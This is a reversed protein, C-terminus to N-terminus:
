KALAARAVSARNGAYGRIQTSKKMGEEHGTQETITELSMAADSLAWILGDRKALLAQITAPNAATIYRANAKRMAKSQDCSDFGPWDIINPRNGTPTAGIDVACTVGGKSIFASWPGSTAKRAAKRLPQYNDAM